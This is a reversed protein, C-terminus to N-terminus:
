RSGITTGVLVTAKGAVSLTQCALKWQTHYQYSSDMGVILSVRRRFRLSSSRRVSGYATPHLAKSPNGNNV